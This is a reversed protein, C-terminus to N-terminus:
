MLQYEQSYLLAKFLNDLPIRVAADDGTNQYEFWDLTWDFSPAGELFIENLFYDYREPTPPFPFLFDTLESVITEAILTNSVIGSNELFAVSDFVIGEGLDGSMLLRDGSLLMEPLKYRSVISSATIWNRDFGPEQYYAPYGAVADPSFINLGSMEFVTQLVSKRYWEDYHEKTQTEADPLPVNFFSVTPLLLEMPSKIIAGIVEDGSTADDADYFHSSKLLTKVAIELNYNNDKLLTGLPIIIDTEVEPTLNSSVFFRYLKRCINRATEPQNFVMDVFDGLERIMDPQNVAGTITQGGFAATFTKDSSDHRNFDAYGATIGTDLDIYQPDAPRTRTSIRWGSLLRSAIVVDDETYNTYDGPGLQPGKGISFLELFERAYNENPNSDTNSGGDLYRLMANNVTMKLALDRYSGFAYFYLLNLYDFGDGANGMGDFSVVWNQHLFFALKHRIGPNNLAEHVWWGKVFDRQSGTGISPAVGSDIFPQGTLYDIPEHITPAPTTFFDDVADSVNMAALAQLRQHTYRFSGRRLLHKARQLGLTGALPSLSAM